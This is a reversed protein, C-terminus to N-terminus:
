GTAASVSGRSTSPSVRVTEGGHPASARRLLLAAVIMVVPLHANLLYYPSEVVFVVLALHLWFRPASTGRASRALLTLFWAGCLALGPIGFAFTLFLIESHTGLPAGRPNRESREPAGHGAVPSERIRDV